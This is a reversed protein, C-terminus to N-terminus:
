RDFTDVGGYRIESLTPTAGTNMVDKEFASYDLLALPSIETLFKCKSLSSCGQCYVTWELAGAWQTARSSTTSSSEGPM